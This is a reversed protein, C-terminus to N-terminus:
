SYPLADHRGIDNINVICCRMIFATFVTFQSKLCSTRIKVIGSICQSIAEHRLYIIDRLMIIPDAGEGVAM